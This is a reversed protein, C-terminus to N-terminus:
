AAGKAANAAAKLNSRVAKAVSGGAAKTAARVMANAERAIGNGLERQLTDLAGGVKSDYAPRLFPQAPIFKRSDGTDRLFKERIASRQVWDIGMKRLRKATARWRRNAQWTAYQQDTIKGESRLKSILAM